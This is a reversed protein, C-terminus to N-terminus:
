FTYNLIDDASACNRCAWSLARELNDEDFREGRPNAAETFGDTYFVVTDGPQLQIEAEYLVPYGYRVGPADRRYGLVPLPTPRRRGSFPLIIPQM